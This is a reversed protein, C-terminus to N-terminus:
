MTGPLSRSNQDMRSAHWVSGHSDTMSLFESQQVDFRQSPRQPVGQQSVNHYRVEPQRDGFYQAHWQQPFSQSAIQQVFGASRYPLPQAPAPNSNDAPWGIPGGFNTGRGPM